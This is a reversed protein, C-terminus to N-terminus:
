TDLWRRLKQKLSIDDDRPLRNYLSVSGKIAVQNHFAQLDVLPAMTPRGHACSFCLQTAKLSSVLQACETPLLPDGFMIATRCAKVNLTRIVAPPLVAVGQTEALQHLYIQLDVANMSVDLVSGFHTLLVSAAHPGRVKWRWGWHELNPRYTELMQVESSSLNMCVSPIVAVSSIYAQAGLVAARFKELRVREDAAHQDVVSLVGNCVLAVFKNEMQKLAIGQQFDSRTITSPMVTHVASGCLAALSKITKVSSPHMSPNSWSQLLQALSPLALSTQQAPQVSSLLALQQQEASALSRHQQPPVGFSFGGQTHQEASRNLASSSISERLSATATRVASHGPQDAGQMSPTAPDASAASGDHADDNGHLGLDFRVRKRSPEPVFDLDAEKTTISPVAQHQMAPVVPVLLPISAPWSGPASQRPLEAPQRPAMGPKSLRKQRFVGSLSTDAPRASLKQRLQGCVGSVTHRQRIQRDQLWEQPLDSPATSPSPYLAARWCHRSSTGGPSTGSCDTHLSHLPNTHASRRHSGYHPPASVARRQKHHQHSRGHWKARDPLSGRLQDAHMACATLSSHHAGTSGSAALINASPRMEDHSGQHRDPKAAQSRASCPLHSADATGAEQDLSAAPSNTGAQLNAPMVEAQHQREAAQSGLKPALKLKVSSQLRALLGRPAAQNVAFPEASDVGTKSPAGAPDAEPGSTYARMVQSGASSRFLNALDVSGQCSFAHPPGHERTCKRRGAATECGPVTWPSQLSQALHDCSMPLEARDAETAAPQTQVFAKASGPHCDLLETLMNDGVVSHWANLVAAQFAALVAPWDAFEIHAKDPDSTIDYSSAPCSIQLAFAPHVQNTRKQQHEDIQELRLM